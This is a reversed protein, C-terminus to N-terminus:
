KTLNASNLYHIAVRVNLVPDESLNSIGHVIRNRIAIQHLDLEPPVPIEDLLRCFEDIMKGIMKM